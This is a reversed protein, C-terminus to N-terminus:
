SSFSEFGFNFNSGFETFPSPPIKVPLPIFRWHFISAPEAFFLNYFVRFPKVRKLYVNLLTRLFLTKFIFAKTCRKSIIPLNINEPFIIHM